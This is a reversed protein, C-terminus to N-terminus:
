MADLYRPRYSGVLNLTSGIAGPDAADPVVFVQTAYRPSLRLMGGDFGVPLVGSRIYRAATYDRVVYVANRDGDAVVADAVTNVTNGGMDGIFTRGDAPLALLHDTDLTGSGSVRTAYVEVAQAMVQPPDGWPDLPAMEAVPVGMIGLDAYTWGGSAGFVYPDPALLAGTGAGTTAGRVRARISFVDGGASRRIRALIRWRGILERCAAPSPPTVFDPVFGGFVYAETGTGPPTWRYATGAAGAAGTVVTSAVNSIAADPAALVYKLTTDPWVRAKSAVYFKQAPVGAPGSSVFATLVMPADVDGLVAPVSFTWTGQEPDGSATGLTVAQSAGYAFPARDLTVEETAGRLALRLWTAADAHRYTVLWRGATAGDAQVFLVNSRRDLERALAGLLAQRADMTAQGPLVLPLAFRVNGYGSAVYPDGDGSSADATLTRLEPRGFDVGSDLGGGRGGVQLGAVGPSLDLRTTTSGVATVFKVTAATM